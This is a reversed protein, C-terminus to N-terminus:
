VRRPSRPDYHSCELPRLDELDYPVAGALCRAWPWTYLAGDPKVRGVPAASLVYHGHRCSKCLVRDDRFSLRSDSDGERRAPEKGENLVAQFPSIGGPTMFNVQDAQTEEVQHSTGAVPGVSVGAQFNRATEAAAAVAAALSDGFIAQASGPVEYKKGDAAVVVGPTDGGSGGGPFKPKNM